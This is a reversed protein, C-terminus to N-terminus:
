YKKKKQCLLGTSALAKENSLNRSLVCHCWLWYCDEPRPIPGDCLGSLVCCESSSSMWAGLPIRVRLGLLRDAASGRRLGSPWQSRRCRYIFLCMFTVFNVFRPPTNRTFYLRTKSSYRVHSFPRRMRYLVCAILTEERFVDQSLQTDVISPSHLFGVWMGIRQFWDRVKSVTTNFYTIVFNRFLLCWSKETGYVIYHRIFYPQVLLSNSPVLFSAATARNNPADKPLSNRFVV